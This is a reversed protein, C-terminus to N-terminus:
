NIAIYTFAIIYASGDNDTNDMYSTQIELDRNPSVVYVFSSGLAESAWGSTKLTNLYGAPTNNSKWLVVLTKRGYYSLVPNPETSYKYYTTIPMRTYDNLTTNVNFETLYDNIIQTPWSNVVTSGKTANTFYTDTNIVKLDLQLYAPLTTSEDISKLSLTASQNYSIYSTQEKDTQSKEWMAYTELEENYSSYSNHLNENTEFHFYMVMSTKDESVLFPINEGYGTVPDVSLLKTLDHNQLFEDIPLGEFTQSNTPSIELLNAVKQEYDLPNESSSINTNDDNSISSETNSAIDSTTNISSSKNSNTCSVLLSLLIIHIIKLKKM